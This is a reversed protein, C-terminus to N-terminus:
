VPKELAAAAAARLKAQAKSWCWGSPGDNVVWHWIPGYQKIKFFMAASKALLSQTRTPFHGARDYAVVIAAALRQLPTARNASTTGRRWSPWSGYWSM